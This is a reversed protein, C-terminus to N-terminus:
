RHAVRASRTSPRTPISFFRATGGRKEVERAVTRGEEDLVDTLAVKAGERAFLLSAARGIGRGGGTIIAVKGDIRGM